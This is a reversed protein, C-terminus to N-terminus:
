WLCSAVERPSPAERKPRRQEITVSRSPLNEDMIIWLAPPEPIPNEPNQYGNVDGCRHCRGRWSGCHGPSSPAGRRVRSHRLGPAPERKM